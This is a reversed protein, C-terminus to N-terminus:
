SKQKFRRIDIERDLPVDNELFQFLKKAMLPAIMVGRTGLGNLIGLRSNDKHVGLLPRRDGTTPRIGAEHEVIEFPCNIVTKLKDVLEQRGEKSPVNTKDAWNFTAGIKYLDKGLPM